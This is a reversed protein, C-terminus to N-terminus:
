LLAQVASRHRTSRPRDQMASRIAIVGGTAAGLLPCIWMVAGPGLSSFLNFAVGSIMLAAGAAFGMMAGLPMPTFRAASSQLGLCGGGLLGVFLMALGTKTPFDELWLRAIVHFALALATAWLLPGPDRRLRPILGLGLGVLGGIVTSWLTISRLISPDSGGFSPPSNAILYHAIAINGLIAGMAAGVLPGPSRKVLVAGGALAGAVLAALAILPDGVFTWAVTGLVLGVYAGVVISFGRSIEDSAAVPGGQEAFQDVFQEITGFTSLAREEAEVQPLGEARAKATLSHLHDHVEEIVQDRLHKPYPLAKDLQTIFQKLLDTM